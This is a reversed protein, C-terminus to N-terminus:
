NRTQRHSTMLSLLISRREITQDSMRAVEPFLFLAMEANPNDVVSAEQSRTTGLSSPNTREEKLLPWYGSAKGKWTSLEFSWFFNKPDRPASPNSLYFQGFETLIPLIPHSTKFTTMKDLANAVGISQRIIKLMFLRINPSELMQRGIGKGRRDFPFHWHSQRITWPPPILKSPAARRREKGMFVHRIM